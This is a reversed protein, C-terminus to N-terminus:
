KSGGEAIAPSEKIRDAISDILILQARREAHPEDWVRRMDRHSGEVAEIIRLVANYHIPDEINYGNSLPPVRAVLETLYGILHNAERIVRNADGKFGLLIDARRADLEKNIQAKTM